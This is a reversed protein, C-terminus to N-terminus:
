SLPQFEQEFIHQTPAERFPLELSNSDSVYVYLSIHFVFYIIRTYFFKLILLKM